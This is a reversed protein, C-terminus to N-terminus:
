YHRWSFRSIRTHHYGTQPLDQNHTDFSNETNGSSSFRTNQLASRKSSSMSMYTVLCVHLMIEVADNKMPVLKRLQMANIGHLVELIDRAATQESRRYLTHNSEHQQPNQSKM